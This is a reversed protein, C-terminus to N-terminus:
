KNAKLNQDTIDPDITNTVNIGNNTNVINGVNSGGSGESSKGARKPSIYLTDGLNLVGDGFISDIKIPGIKAPM